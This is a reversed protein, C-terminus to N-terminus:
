ISSRSATKRESTPQHEVLMKAWSAGIPLGILMGAVWDFPMIRALSSIQGAYIEAVLDQGSLARGILPGLTAVVPISMALASLPAQFAAVRAAIGSAVGAGIAAAFAQGFSGAQALLWGAALGAVSGVGIAIGSHTNIIERDRGDDPFPCIRLVLWCTLATLVGLLLGEVALRTFPDDVGTARIIGTLRGSGTAAWALAVGACFMADSAGVLRAVVIALVGAIAIALISMGLGMAPAASLLATADSGGDGAPVSSVLMGCVPGVLL